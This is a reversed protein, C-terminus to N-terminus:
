PDQKYKFILRQAATLEIINRSDFWLGRKLIRAASSEQPETKPMKKLEKAM